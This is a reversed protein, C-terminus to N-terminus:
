APRPAEPYEQAPGNLPWHGRPIEPHLEAFVTAAVTAREILMATAEREVEDLVAVMAADLDEAEDPRLDAWLTGPHVFSGQLGPPGDRRISTQISTRGSHYCFHYCCPRVPGTQSGARTSRANQEVSLISGFRVRGSRVSPM